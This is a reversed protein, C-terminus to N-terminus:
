GSKENFFQQIAEVNEKYDLQLVAGAHEYTKNTFGDAVPIRLTKVDKVPKLAATAGLSLMDELQLDTEVYQFTESIIKPLKTIGEVSRLQEVAQNKLSVLIEQQRNVRGFDNESDHRFRVYSLLDEGRLIQRGPKISLDMGDAMERTINVEIGNPALTDMLKIFGKFDVTVVNDIDVGFNHEITDKLLKPGGLYYAHNLKSRYNIYGPIQVYSDRMISALKLSREKPEYRAIMIADSRSKREGRSDIGILLINKNEQYLRFTSFYPVSLDSDTENQLYSNEEVTKKKTIGSNINEEQQRSFKGFQCGTILILMMIITFCKRAMVGNVEIDHSVKM